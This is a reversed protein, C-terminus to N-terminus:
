RDMGSWFVFSNRMLDSGRKREKSRSFSLNKGMEWRGGLINLVCEGRVMLIDFIEIMQEDRLWVCATVVCLLLVPKPIRRNEIQIPCVSGSSAAGRKPVSAGM